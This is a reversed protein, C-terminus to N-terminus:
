CISLNFLKNITNEIDDFYSIRLLKINNDICYKTKIKDKRQRDLLGKQGGFKEIANYHQIGDYEICTNYDPLYFDFPLSRKDLCDSFRKQPIFNIHYDQLFKRIMKEGFSQKCNPCGAGNLHTNPIQEFNGHIPCIIIVKSKSDIYNTLSYDYKANHTKNAKEIFKITHSTKSKARLINGCRQCGNGQMHERPTQEFEGHISCVIKIKTVNNTYNALSYNYKNGHIFNAKKVFIENSQKIGGNCSPCGHNRVHSDPTQEFNGHIPCIIIVKTHANKYNVQSYDYKNNHIISSKKIFNNKMYLLYIFFQSFNIKRGM